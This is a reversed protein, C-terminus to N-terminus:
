PRGRAAAGDVDAAGDLDRRRDRCRTPAPELCRPPLPRPQTTALRTPPPDDDRAARRARGRVPEALELQAAEDHVAAQLRAAAKGTPACLALLPPREGAAGARECLVACIRAVTTTKGTGPGGAIVTLGRMAAAAVAARQRVDGDGFLRQVAGALPELEVPRLPAASFARLAAALEREERWYRDLYLRGGLLRLPRVVAPDEAAAGAAVLEPQAAVAAIWADAAPWPLEDVATEEAEVAVTERVTALDVFVHGLRPARVALAVALAVTADVVGAMRGLALAVHVDAASLVGARNFAALPAPADLALESAFLEAETM